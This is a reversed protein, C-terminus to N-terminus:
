GRLSSLQGKFKGNCTRDESMVYEAKCQGWDCVSNGNEM